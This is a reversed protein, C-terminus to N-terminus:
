YNINEIMVQHLMKQFDDATCLLTGERILSANAAAVGYRLMEPIELQQEMAMCIGAVLSDGAGQVGRVQIDSGPAFWAQDSSVMVAGDKGMTVCVISVGQEILSRSIRVIDQK